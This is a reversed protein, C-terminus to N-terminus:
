EISVDEGPIEWCVQEGVTDSAVEFTRVTGNAREVCAISVDLGREGMLLSDDTASCDREDFQPAEHAYMSGATFTEFLRCANSRFTGM